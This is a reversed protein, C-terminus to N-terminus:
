EYHLLARDFEIFSNSKNGLNSLLLRKTVLYLFNSLSAYNHALSMVVEQPLTGSPVRQILNVQQGFKFAELKEIFPSIFIKINTMKWVKLLKNMKSIKFLEFNITIKSVKPMNDKLNPCTMTREQTQGLHLAM